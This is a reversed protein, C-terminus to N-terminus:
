PEEEVTMFAPHDTKLLWGQPRTFFIWQGVYVQALKDTVVALFQEHTLGNEGSEDLGLKYLPLIDAEDIGTPIEGVVYFEGHLAADPYKNLFDKSFDKHKAVHM